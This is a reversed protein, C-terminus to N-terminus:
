VLNLFGNRVLNEELPEGRTTGQVFRFKIIRERYSNVDYLIVFDFTFDYRFVQLFDEQMRKM